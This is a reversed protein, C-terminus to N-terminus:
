KIFAILEENNKKAESLIFSQHHGPYINVNDKLTLIEKLSNKFYKDDCYSRNHFGIKDYFITDGIFAANLEQCMIYQSGPTHGAIHVIEITLDILNLIIDGKLNILNPKIKEDIVFSKEYNSSFNRNANFLCEEDWENIYLKIDQFNDIVANLGILHDFHGHTIIVHKITINNNKAYEIAKFAEKGADILIAANNNIILYTNQNNIAQNTFTKIVAKM